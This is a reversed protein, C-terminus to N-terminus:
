KLLFQNLFTVNLWHNKFYSLENLNTRVIYIMGSLNEVVESNDTFKCFGAIVM